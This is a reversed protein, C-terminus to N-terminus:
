ERANVEAAASDTHIGQLHFGGLVEQDPPRKGHASYDRQGQGQIGSDREEKIM